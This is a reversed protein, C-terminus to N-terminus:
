PRSISSPIKPKSADGTPETGSKSRSNSEQEDRYLRRRVAAPFMSSVIAGAEKAKTYVQRYNKEVNWDYCYILGATFAFVGLVLGSFIWPTATIYQEEIEYSAYLHMEYTCMDELPIGKYKKFSEELEAFQFM